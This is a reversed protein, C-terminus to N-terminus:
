VIRGVWGLMARIVSSPEAFILVVIVFVAIYLLKVGV